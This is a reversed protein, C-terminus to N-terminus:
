IIGYIVLLQVLHLIQDQMLTLKFKNAKLDDIIAHVFVNVWFVIRFKVDFPCVFLYPIMVMFTWSFSHILLCIIYDLQYKNTKYDKCVKDWFSKQKFNALLGQLNFDAMIHLFMSIYLLLVPNQM